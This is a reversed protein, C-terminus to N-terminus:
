TYRLTRWRYKGVTLIVIDSPFMQLAKSWTVGRGLKPGILNDSLVLRIQQTCNTGTFSNMLATATQQMTSDGIMLVTRNNLRKCTLDKDFDPPLNPSSWIYEDRFSDGCSCANGGTQQYFQGSEGTYVKSNLRQNRCKTFNHSVWKPFEDYGCCVDGGYFPRTPDHIWEGIVGHPDSCNFDIDAQNTFSNIVDIIKCRINTINSHLSADGAYNTLIKTVQYDFCMFIMLVVCIAGFLRTPM